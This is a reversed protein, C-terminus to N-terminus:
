RMHDPLMQKRGRLWWWEQMCVLSDNQCVDWWLSLIRTQCSFTLFVSCKLWLCFIKPNQPTLLAIKPGKELWNSVFEHFFLQFNEFQKEQCFLSPGHGGAGGGGPSPPWAYCVLIKWGGLFFVLFNLFNLNKRNGYVFIFHHDQFLHKM